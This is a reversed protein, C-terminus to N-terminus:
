ESLKQKRTVTREVNIEGKSNQSITAKVGGYLNITIKEMQDDLIVDVAKKLLEQIEDSKKGFLTSVNELARERRRVAKQYREAATCRCRMTADEIAQQETREAEDLQIMQNCFRCPATHLVEKPM